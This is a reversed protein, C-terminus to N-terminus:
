PMEGRELQRRKLREVRERRLAEDRERRLAEIEDLAALILTPHQEQLWAISDHQRQTGDAAEDFWAALHRRILAINRPTLTRIYRTRNM